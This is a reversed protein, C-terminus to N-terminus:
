LISSCRYACKDWILSRGEVFEPHKSRSLTLIIIKQHFWVRKGGYYTNALPSRCLGPQTSAHGPVKGVGQVSQRRVMSQGGPPCPDLLSDSLALKWVESTKSQTELCM